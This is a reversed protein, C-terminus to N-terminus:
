APSLNPMSDLIPGHQAPNIGTSRAATSTGDPLHGPQRDYNGTSNGEKVGRTHSPKDPSVDPKGVKIM